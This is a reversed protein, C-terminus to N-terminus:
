AQSMCVYRQMIDERFERQEHRRAYADSEYPARQDYGMGYSANGARSNDTRALPPYASRPIRPDKSRGTGYSPAVSPGSRFTADDMYRFVGRPIPYAM